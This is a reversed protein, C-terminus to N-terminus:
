PGASAPLAGQGCNASKKGTLGHIRCYADDDQDSMWAIFDNANPLGAMTARAKCVNDAGLLGDQGGSNAWTSLDGTGSVSTAFVLRQAAVSTWSDVLAVVILSLRLM